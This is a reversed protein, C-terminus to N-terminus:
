KISNCKFYDTKSPTSRGSLSFYTLTVGVSDRIATNSNSGLELTLNCMDANFFAHNEQTVYVNNNYTKTARVYCYVRNSQRSIELRFNVPTYSKQYNSFEGNPTNGSSNIITALQLGELTDSHTYWGAIVQRTKGASDNSAVLRFYAGNRDGIHVDKLEVSAKFDGEISDILLVANNGTITSDLILLRLGDTTDAKVSPLFNKQWIKTCSSPLGEKKCNSGFFLIFLAILTILLYRM